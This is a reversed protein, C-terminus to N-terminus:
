PKDRETVRLDVPITATHFSPLHVVQWFAVQHQVVPLEAPARTPFRRSSFETGLVPDYRLQTGACGAIEVAERINHRLRGAFRANVARLRHGKSFDVSDKGFRQGARGKRACRVIFRNDFAWHHGYM